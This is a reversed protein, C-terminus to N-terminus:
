NGELENIVAGLVGNIFAGSENGGYEKALKIAENASVKYPIDDMYKIEYISLQLIALNVKSIRQITWDKLKGEIIANIEEEKEEIGKVVGEIYKRSAVSVFDQAWMENSKEVTKYLYSLADDASIDSIKMEFVLKFADERALARSM